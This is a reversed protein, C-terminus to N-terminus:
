KLHGRDKRERGGGPHLEGFGGGEDCVGALPRELSLWWMLQRPSCQDKTHPANHAGSYLCDEAWFLVLIEVKDLRPKTVVGGDWSGQEDPTEKEVNWSSM